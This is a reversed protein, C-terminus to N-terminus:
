PISVVDDEEARVWEEGYEKRLADDHLLDEQEVEVLEGHSHQCTCKVFIYLSIPIATGFVM